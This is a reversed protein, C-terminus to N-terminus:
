PGRSEIDAHIAKSREDFLLRLEARARDYSRGPDAADQEGVLAITTLAADAAMAPNPHAAIWDLMDDLVSTGWTQSTDLYTSIVTVLWPWRTSPSSYEGDATHRRVFADRVRLISGAGTPINQLNPRSSSIRGTVAGDLRLPKSM